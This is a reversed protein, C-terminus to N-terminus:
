LQSRRNQSVFGYFIGLNSLNNVRDVYQPLDVIKETGVKVSGPTRTRTLHPHLHPERALLIKDARGIPIKKPPNPPAPNKKLQLNTNQLSTTM